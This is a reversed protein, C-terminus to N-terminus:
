ATWGRARVVDAERQQDLWRRVDERHFRVSKGVRFGEPANGLLRRNMLTKRSIKLEAAVEDPTM